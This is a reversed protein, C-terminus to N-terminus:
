LFRRYLYFFLGVFLGSILGYLGGFLFPVPSLHHDQVFAMVTFILGCALGIIASAVFVRRVFLHVALAVVILTGLVLFIQPYPIM